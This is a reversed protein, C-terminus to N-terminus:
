EQCCESLFQLKAEVQLIRFRQVTRSFVTSGPANEQLLMGDLWRQCETRQWGVLAAENEKGALRAFYLKALFEQRMERGHEVPNNMWAAFAHRGDANIRFVKRMPQTDVAPTSELWGREELKVLLAYLRGPKIHWVLGIGDPARMKKLLDYGHAPEQALLGLLVYEVSWPSQQRSM